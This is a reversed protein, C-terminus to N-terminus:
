FRLEGYAAISQQDSWIKAGDWIGTLVGNEDHNEMTCNKAVLRKFDGEVRLNVNKGVAVGVIASLHWSNGNGYMPGGLEGRRLHHDFSDARLWGWDAQLVLGFRGCDVYSRAGVYFDKFVYSNLIYDGALPGQPNGAISTQFGDHSVFRFNQWRYGAVPRLSAGGYAVVEWDANVDALWGREMRCNSESFTTKQGPDSPFEWDSDQFKLRAEQNLRGWLEASFTMTRYVQNLQVGVFWQDIPSELRSLPNQGAFTGGPQGPFQYSCFSNIFKKIGLDSYCGPARQFCAGAPLSLDGWGPMSMSGPLGQAECVSVGGALVVIVVCRVFARKLGM